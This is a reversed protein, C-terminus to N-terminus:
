NLMLLAASYMSFLCSTLRVTISGRLNFPEFLYQQAAAASPFQNIRRTRSPILKVESILKKPTTLNAYLFFCLTLFQTHSLSLSNSDIIHLSISILLSLHFILGKRFVHKEERSYFSCFTATM